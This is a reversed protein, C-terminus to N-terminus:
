IITERRIGIGQLGEIVGDRTIIVVIGRHVMDRQVRIIDMMMIGMMMITDQVGSMDERTHGMDDADKKERTTIMLMGGVEGTETTRGKELHGGTLVEDGRQM